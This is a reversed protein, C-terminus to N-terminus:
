PQASRQGSSARKDDDPALTAALQRSHTSLDPGQHERREYRLPEGHEYGFLVRGVQFSQGFEDLGAGHCGGDVADVWELFGGIRHTVEDGALCSAFDGYGDVALSM